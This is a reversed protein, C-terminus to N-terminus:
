MDLPRRPSSSRTSPQAHPAQRGSRMLRPCVTLAQRLQGGAATPLALLTGRSKHPYLTLATRGRLPPIRLREGRQVATSCVVVSTEILGQPLGTGKSVVEFRPPTPRNRSPMVTMVLSSLSQPSREACPASCPAAAAGGEPAKMVSSTCDDLAVVMVVIPSTLAPRRVKEGPRTKLAFTPVRSRAPEHRENPNADREAGVRQRRDEDPRQDSQQAATAYRGAPAASALKARTSKPSVVRWCPHPEGLAQM